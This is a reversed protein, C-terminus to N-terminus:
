CTEGKRMYAYYDKEKSKNKIKGLKELNREQKRTEKERVHHRWIAEKTLKKNCLKLCKQHSLRNRLSNQFLGNRIMQAM